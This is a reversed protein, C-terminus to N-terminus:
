TVLSPRRQQKRLALCSSRVCVPQGQETSASAARSAHQPRGCSARCRAFVEAVRGKRLEGRRSARASEPFRSPELRLRFGEATAASCRLARGRLSTRPAAFTLLIQGVHTDPGNMWLIRSCKRSLVMAKSSLTCIAVEAGNQARFPFRETASARAEQSIALLSLAYKCTRITESRATEGREGRLSCPSSFSITRLAYQVNTAPCPVSPHLRHCAPRKPSAALPRPIVRPWGRAVQPSLM